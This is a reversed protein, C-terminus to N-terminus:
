NKEAINAEMVQTIDMESINKLERITMEDYSFNSMSQAKILETMLKSMLARVESAVIQISKNIETHREKNLEEKLSKAYQNASEIDRNLSEITSEKEKQLKKVEDAHSANAKAVKAEFDAKIREEIARREEESKEKISSIQTDMEEKLRNLEEAKKSEYEAIQVAYKEIQEGREKEIEDIRTLLARNSEELHLKAKEAKEKELELAQAKKMAENKETTMADLKKQIEAIDKDKIEDKLEKAEKANLKLQEFQDFFLKQAEPTMQAYQYALERSVEGKEVLGKIEDILNDNIKQYQTVTSPHVKNGETSMKEAVIERTKKGDFNVGSKRQQEVIEVLRKVSQAKEIDNLERTELNTIILIGEAELDDCEVIKCTISEWGNLTAARHRREGSLLQYEITEDDQSKFPRVVANHLQGHEKLSDALKEIDRMGFLNQPHYSIKNLEIDKLGYKAKSEVSEAVEVMEKLNEIVIGKNKNTKKITM